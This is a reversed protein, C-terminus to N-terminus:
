PTCWDLGLVLSTPMVLGLQLSITLPKPEQPVREPGWFLQKLTVKKHNLAYLLLFSSRLFKSYPLHLGGLIRTGLIWAM